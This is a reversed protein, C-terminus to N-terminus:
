KKAPKVTGPNIMELYQIIQILYTDIDVPSKLEIMLDFPTDTVEPEFLGVKFAAISLSSIYQLPLLKKFNIDILVDFKNNIFSKTDSSVPHYFFDLEKRRICTLFRIATYQDPLNNGPFYGIIKVDINREQMKQCFRSLVPFEDAKSADWVIGVKKVESFTTFHITHKKPSIKKVLIAKGIKLRINQFLEM